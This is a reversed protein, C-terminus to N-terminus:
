GDLNEIFLVIIKIFSVILQQDSQEELLLSIENQETQVHKKNQWAHNIRAGFFNFQSRKWCMDWECAREFGNIWLLANIM